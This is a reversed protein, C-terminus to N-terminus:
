VLVLEGDPTRLELEYRLETRIEELCRKADGAALHQAAGSGVAERILLWVASLPAPEEDARVAGLLERQEPFPHLAIQETRKRLGALVDGSLLGAHSIRDLKAPLDVTSLESASLPGFNRVTDLAYELDDTANLLERLRTREAKTPPQPIPDPTSRTASASRVGSRRAFLGLLVGIALAALAIWIDSM